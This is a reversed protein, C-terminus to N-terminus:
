DQKYNMYYWSSARNKIIIPMFLKLKYALHIHCLHYFSFGMTGEVEVTGLAVTTQYFIFELGLELSTQGIQTLTDAALM